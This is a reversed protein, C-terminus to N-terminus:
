FIDAALLITSEEESLCEAPDEDREAQETAVERREEEERELDNAVVGEREKRNCDDDGEEKEHLCFKDVVPFTEM